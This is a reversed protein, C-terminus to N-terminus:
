VAHGPKPSIRSDACTIFLVEPAQGLALKAFLDKFGHFVEGQFKQIGELLKRM